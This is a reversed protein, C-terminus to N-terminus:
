AYSVYPPQTYRIGYFSNTLGDTVGVVTANDLQVVPTAFSYVAQLALLPLVNTRM